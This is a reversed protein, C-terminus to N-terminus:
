RGAAASLTRFGEGLTAGRLRLGPQWAEACPLPCNGCRGTTAPAVRLPYPGLRAVVQVAVPPYDAPWILTASLAGPRALEHRLGNGGYVLGLGLLVWGSLRGWRALPARLVLLPGLVAAGILYAYAFRLAPAAVFWGGGGLLLLGYLQVEARRLQHRLAAPRRLALWLLWGLVLAAGALGLVLLRKDAPEQQAWWPPLWQRLPQGAALSWDALPRRAFLRIEALDALRQAEPVLWDPGPSWGVLPYALYGSLLVNRGLWPLLVVTVVGGVVALGRGWARRPLRLLAAAPWLLLLGASPKFTLATATLLALWALGGLAFRPTELLAGLLLLGWVAVTSDPLPSSIWPRLAMLLLLLTGLYFWSLWPQGGPRAHGAARRVHHLVLLLCGLSNFVQQFAPGRGAAPSFFATLLHAHSNFALRGQLNGLGPVVPYHHLWQVFQAHYLAADPFVPPQAAHVLVLAVLVAALAGAGVGAQRWAHAYSRLLQHLQGRGAVLCGVALVSLGVQLGLAVPLSFSLGAVLWALAALGTLGLLEPSTTLVTPLPGALRRLAAALGLGLGLSVGLAWGWFLLILLM